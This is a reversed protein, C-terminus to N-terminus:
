AVAARDALTDRYRTLVADLVGPHLGLPAAALDAGADELRRQFVGPALLWSAVAVRRGPARASAVVGALKPDGSALYGVRVPCDLRRGLARAAERVEARAGPDSSGAAALVTADGPRWGAARLRDEAAAVLRPDTGLGRDGRLVVRPDAGLVSTLRVRGALGASALQAPLDHRVHYGAALFAPVVVVEAARRLAPALDAVTPPRVDVFALRVTAGPLRRRVSAALRLAVEAGAGDRTGHAVLLLPPLGCSAASLSESTFAESSAGSSAVSSCSSLPCSPVSPVAASV